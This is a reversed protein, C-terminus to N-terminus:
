IHILSLGYLLLLMFHKHNGWGVCNALWPCHHDMRLICGRCVRCHHTRDPKLVACWKCVRMGGSSKTETTQDVTSEGGEDPSGPRVFVSLIFCTMFLTFLFGFAILEGLGRSFADRDTESQQLLPALHYTVYVGVVVAVLAFVFLVPLSRLMAGRRGGLPAAYRLPAAKGKSDQEGRQHAGQQLTDKVSDGEQLPSASENRFASHGESQAAELLPQQDDEQEM